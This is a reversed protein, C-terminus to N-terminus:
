RSPYGDPDPRGQAPRGHPGSRDRTTAIGVVTHGLGTVLDELDMAIVLEDEIILIRSALDRDIARLAANIAEQSKM